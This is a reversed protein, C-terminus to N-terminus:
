CYRGMDFCDKKKEAEQNLNTNIGSGKGGIPCFATECKQAKFHQKSNNLHLIFYKNQCECSEKELLSYMINQRFCTMVLASPLTM